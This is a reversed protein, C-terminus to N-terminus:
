LFFYGDILLVVGLSSKGQWESQQRRARSGRESHVAKLGGKFCDPVHQKIAVVGDFLSFGAARQASNSHRERRGGLKAVM